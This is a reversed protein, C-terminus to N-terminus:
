GFQPLLASSSMRMASWAIYSAFASPRLQQRKLSPTDSSSTLSAFAYGSAQEYAYAARFLSPEGLDGLGSILVNEGLGGRPIELGLQAAADSVEEEAVVSVQRRNPQGAGAGHRSAKAPTFAAWSATRAM